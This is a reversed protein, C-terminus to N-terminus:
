HLSGWRAAQGAEFSDPFGTRLRELYSAAAARDGLALETQAGLWLSAPTEAAVERYRQLFGRAPLYQKSAVTLKAMELLAPAFRPNAQLAQRFFGEAEANRNAAKSCIGANTLPLWPQQYLPAAIVQRFQAMGDQQRGHECLFRGYNNRASYNEPNNAIAKRFYGDAEDDRQLRDYLVGLANYAESNSSDLDVARKLDADATELMGQEMYQIGLQVYVDSQSLSAYPDQPNSDRKEDFMQCGTLVLCVASFAGARGANM